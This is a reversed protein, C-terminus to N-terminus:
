RIIIKRKVLYGEQQVNKRHVQDLRHVWGQCLSADPFYILFHTSTVESFLILISLLPLPHHPFRPPSPSPHPRMSLISRRQRHPTTHSTSPASPTTRRTPMCRSTVTTVTRVTGRTTVRRGHCRARFRPASTTSLGRSSSTTTSTSTSLSWCLRM